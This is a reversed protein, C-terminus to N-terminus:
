SPYYASNQQTSLEFISLLYGLMNLETAVFGRSTRTNVVVQWDNAQGATEWFYSEGQDDGGWCLLGGAAPFIPPYSDPSIEHHERYADHTANVSSTHKETCLDAIGVVLSPNHELVCPGFIGFFDIYDQPLAIRPGLSRHLTDSAPRAEDAEPKGFLQILRELEASM